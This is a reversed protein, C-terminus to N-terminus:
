FLFSKLFEYAQIFYVTLDYKVFIRYLVFISISWLVLIPIMVKLRLYNTRSELMLLIQGPAVDTTKPYVLESLRLPVTINDNIEKLKTFLYSTVTERSEMFENPIEILKYPFGLWSIKFGFSQLESEIKPDKTVKYLVRWEKFERYAEYLSKLGLM